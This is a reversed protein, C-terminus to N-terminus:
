YHRLLFAPRLPLVTDPIVPQARRVRDFTCNSLPVSFPASYFGPPWDLTAFTLLGTSRLLDNDHLASRIVARQSNRAPNAHQQAASAERSLTSSNVRFPVSATVASSKSFAM